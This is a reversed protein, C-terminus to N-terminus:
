FLIGPSELIELVHVFGATLVTIVFHFLDFTRVSPVNAWVPNGHLSSGYSSWKLGLDLLGTDSYSPLLSENLSKADENGENNKDNGPFDSLSL